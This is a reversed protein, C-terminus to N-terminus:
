DQENPIFRTALQLLPTSTRKFLGKYFKCQAWFRLFSKGLAYFRGTTQIFLHSGSKFLTEVLAYTFVLRDLSPAALFFATTAKSLVLILIHRLDGACGVAVFLDLIM